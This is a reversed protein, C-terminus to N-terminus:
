IREWEFRTINRDKKSFEIGILYIERGTYKEHYKKEKIQDLARVPKTLENVKFEFIYANENFLVAMDLRGHNTTEEARVDLGLATFYCYVISCYYGEYGALDNKRYWDNPISAFFAHFIQKLGDLDNLTLLDLMNLKTQDKEQGAQTLEALLADNFAYKVEHNPFGLKYYIGGPYPISEKITLYGTQFLLPSPEICDVDFSGMFTDTIKIKELFAAPVAKERILHILFTPTGSEFWYPKFRRKQFYLLVDFPNYVPEGLFNYGNYWKQIQTIDTNKLYDRFVTKLEQHTYGCLTAYKHDLTIDELNNLGSFLSVKSFKSVGTLVVFRLHDRQAKLVSYFNRLGDRMERATEPANINDLIPKDYEDVLVVVRHRSQDHRKQILEEFCDDIYSCDLVLGAKEAHMKLIRHLRQELREPSKMVSEALDIHIIPHSKNWDWNNELFLGKFLDKNGQFAHSITDILLSKGFRRPRSLFYYKGQDVLQHILETKDVYCHNDTIIEKFSDIGIPLKKM